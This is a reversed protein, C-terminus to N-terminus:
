IHVHTGETENQHKNQKGYNIKDKEDMSSLFGKQIFLPHSNPKNSQSNNMTDRVSPRLRREVRLCHSKTFVGM